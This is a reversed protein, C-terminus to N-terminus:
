WSAALPARLGHKALVFGGARAIWPNAEQGSVSRVFGGNPFWSHPVPRIALFAPGGDDWGVSTIPGTTGEHVYVAYDAYNGVSYRVHNRGSPTLALNHLGKLQGTRVPAEIAAMQMHEFGVSRMWGWVDGGPLFLGAVQTDYVTVRVNTPM